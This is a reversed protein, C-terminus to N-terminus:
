WHTPAPVRNTQNWTLRNTCFWKPGAHKMPQSMSWPFGFTDPLWLMPTEAAGFRDRFHGRGLTLLRVLSEVVGEFFAIQEESLANGV